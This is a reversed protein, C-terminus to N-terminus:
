KNSINIYATCIEQHNLANIVNIFSIVSASCVNYANDYEYTLVSAYVCLYVTVRM